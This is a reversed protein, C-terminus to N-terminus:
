WRPLRLSVGVTLGRPQTEIGLHSSVAATLRFMVGALLNVRAEDGEPDEVIIAQGVDVVLREYTRYRTMKSYGAGGYVIVYPNLPRVLAANFSRWSSEEKIYRVEELEVQSPTLDKRFAIDGSPKDIDLKVDAYFGIGGMRPFIVYGGVGGMLDPANAVYGAGFQLADRVPAPSQGASTEPNLAAVAVLAGGLIMWRFLSPVRM